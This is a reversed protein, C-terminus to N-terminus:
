RLQVLPPVGDVHFTVREFSWDGGKTARITWAKGGEGALVEVKARKLRRQVNDLKGAIRGGPALVYITTSRKREWVHAAVSFSETGLPVHLLAESGEQVFQLEAFPAAVYYIPVHPSTIIVGIRANPVQILVPADRDLKAPISVPGTVQGDFLPGEPGSVRVTM